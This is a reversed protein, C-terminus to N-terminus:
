PYVHKSVSMVRTDVPMNPKKGAAGYRANGSYKNCKESIDRSLSGYLVRSTKNGLVHRLGNMVYSQVRRVAAMRYRFHGWDANKKCVEIESDCDYPPRKGPKIVSHERTCGAFLYYCLAPTKARM